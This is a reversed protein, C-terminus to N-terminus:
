AVLSRTGRAGGRARKPRRGLAVVPENSAEADGPRLALGCSATASAGLEDRAPTAYADASVVADGPSLLLSKACATGHGLGPVARLKKIEGHPGLTSEVTRPPKAHGM